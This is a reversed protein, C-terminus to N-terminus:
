ESCDRQSGSGAEGDYEVLRVTMRFMKRDDQVFHLIEYKGVALACVSEEDRREMYVYYLKDM